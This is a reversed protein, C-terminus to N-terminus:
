NVCPWGPERDVMLCGSTVSGLLTLNYRQLTTNVAASTERIKARRKTVLSRGFLVALPIASGLLAYKIKTKAAGPMDHHLVGLEPSREIEKGIRMRDWDYAFQRGCDLCVVYTEGAPEGPKSLPTIPRTLPRHSCGLLSEFIPRIM